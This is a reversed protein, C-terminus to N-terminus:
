IGGVVVEGCPAGNLLTALRKADEAAMKKVSTKVRQMTEKKSLVGKEVLAAYKGRTLVLVRTAETAVM